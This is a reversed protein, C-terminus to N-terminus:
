GSEVGVLLVLDLFFFRDVDMEEEELSLPGFVGDEEVVVVLFLDERDKDEVALVLFDVAGRELLLRVGEEWDVEDERRLVGEEERLVRGELGEVGEELVGVGVLAGEEEEVVTVRRSWVPDRGGMWVGVGGMVGVWYKARSARSVAKQRTGRRASNERGM